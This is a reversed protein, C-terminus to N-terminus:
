DGEFKQPGPLMSSQLGTSGRPPFRRLAEQFYHVANSHCNPSVLLSVVSVADPDQRKSLGYRLCVAFRSGTDGTALHVITLDNEMGCFRDDTMEGEIVHELWRAAWELEWTLLCPSSAIWNGEENKAEIQITLWNADYGDDADPFQYGVVHITLKDGRSGSLRLSQM